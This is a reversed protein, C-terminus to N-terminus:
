RKLSTLFLLICKMGLDTSPINTIKKEKEKKIKSGSDNKSLDLSPIQVKEKKEAIFIWLITWSQAFQLWHICMFLELKYM